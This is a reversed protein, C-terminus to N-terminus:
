VRPDLVVRRTLRHGRMDDLVANVEGMSRVEVFPELAVRGDRIMALAEPYAEPPCGWTGHVTADFAMLNSLRLPTKEPTFGVQVMTSARGILGFALQQTAPLGACEFIKWDWTDASVSRAFRQVDDRVDRLERGGTQVTHRAGHQAILELRADSVDLAVAALGMAAALQVVFGGVGGAGVVVALQGPRADARRLAQLATSVADAVVAFLRVDVAGAADLAVLPLAPVRLHTAFGGHVDNGPMKQRPCANGRGLKCLACEGCPLVAPVVVTRGVLSAFRDGAAVVRGVVEHGLVLPLPHVTRVGGDAFGLDTHCVGNGFVEVIADDPGPAELALARLELPAGPAVLFWGKADTTGAGDKSM